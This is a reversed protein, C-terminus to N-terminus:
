DGIRSARGQCAPSEFSLDLWDALQELSQIELDPREAHRWTEDRRNIWATRLGAARAGLVDLEPDDGVHLVEGPAHGLRECAALFIGPDPKAAGHERAGLCFRLHTSLGTRHICANGNTLGALPLRAALRRLGPLSDAFLDVQNRAAFFVEFAAEALGADDGSSQLAHLLSLRRQESFDHALHPSESAVRARLERMRELPFARATRPANVLLWEQVATEAREIAPWVPWLTDDLDLTIARLPPVHSGPNPIRSKFCGRMTPLHDRAELSIHPRSAAAGLAPIPSEPNSAIPTARKPGASRSVTRPFYTAM